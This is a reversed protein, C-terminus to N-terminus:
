RHENSKSVAVEVEHYGDFPGRYAILSQREAQFVEWVTKDSQEPHPSERAQALCRAELWANLEDYDAFHLRPTFLHERLNGVQNEVQGKEWGAAPTCAVPEVLYHSCMQLFRRNFIRKKGVFVADVATKMNDYIGRQAAGGFLQFAREHADFVMEQTERPYARVFPMRSHCLRVHAAKVIVTVGSLLVVEHSWDFQYAEGPAFTLPVYVAATSHGRAKSWRRAYRRVADYGGAYGRGRLDEFIRILTRQERAAKAENRALLEDLDTTWRGLKPLPQVDRDYALSTEGSRLMKRVTNRSVRLDRAIQRITKGNVFHERRIRGITEVTLM